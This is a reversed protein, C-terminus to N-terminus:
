SRQPQALWHPYKIKHKDILLRLAAIVVATVILVAHVIRTNHEFRNSLVFGAVVLLGSVVAVEEYIAGRFNRPERNIIIDRMIGGGAVTLAASAPAWYWDSGSLICAM